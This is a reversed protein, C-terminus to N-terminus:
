CRKKMKLIKEHIGYLTLFRQDFCYIEYGGSKKYLSKNPPFTVHFQRVGFTSPKNKLLDRRVSVYVSGGPALFSQAEVLAKERSEQTLVNLVYNCVVVDFKGKPKEPKYHPDYEEINGDLFLKLDGKGCGFDLIRGKLLGQKHLYASPASLKNRKIATKSTM